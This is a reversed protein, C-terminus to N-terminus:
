DTAEDTDDVTVTGTVADIQEDTLQTISDVTVEGYPGPGVFVPDPSNDFFHTARQDYFAVADIVVGDNDDTPTDVFTGSDAADAIDLTASISEGQSQGTSLPTQQWGFSSSFANADVSGVVTGDLTINLNADTPSDFSVSSGLRGRVGAHFASEPIDHDPPGITATITESITDLDRATDQEADTDTIEDATGAFDDKAVALFATQEPQLTDTGDDIRYPDSPAPQGFMERLTPGDDASQIVPIDAEPLSRLSPTWEPTDAVAPRITEGSDLDLELYWGEPPPGTM